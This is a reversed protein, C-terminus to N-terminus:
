KKKASLSLNSLLDKLKMLLDKKHKKISPYLYFTLINIKKESAM